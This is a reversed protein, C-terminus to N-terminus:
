LPVEKARAMRAAKARVHKNQHKIFREETPDAGRTLAREARARTFLDKKRVVPKQASM